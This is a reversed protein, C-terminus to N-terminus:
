QSDREDLMVAKWRVFLAQVWDIGYGLLTSLGSAVVIAAIGLMERSRGTPILWIACGILIVLVGLAYAVVRPLTRPWPAWHLLLEGLFAVTLGFWFWIEIM